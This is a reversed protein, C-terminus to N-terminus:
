KERMEYKERLMKVIAEAYASMKFPTSQQPPLLLRIEEVLNDKYIDKPDVRKGDKEIGMGYTAIDKAMLDEKEAFKEDLFDIIENITLDYSIYGSSQRKSDIRERLSM